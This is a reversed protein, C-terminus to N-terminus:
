VYAEEAKVIIPITLTLETGHQGDINMNGEVLALRERMGDLGSGKGASANFGVGDDKVTILMNGHQNRFSIRCMNAKSHKVINTGAERLCMSIINQQLHPLKHPEEERDVQLEIEAKKFLQSLREIESDISLSRMDAVLERVQKLAARSTAEIEKAEKIAYDPDKSVLRQVLQSQLTILSLTHGLTDHLDRAIRTREERKILEQIQENAKNLQQELQAQRAISRVAFPTSMMVFYMPIVLFYELTAGRMECWVAVALVSVGLVGMAIFFTRQKEFYAVFNASYFAMFLNWPTFIISFALIISLQIIWWVAYVRDSQVWYLKYYTFLFAGMMVIGLVLKFGTELTLYIIPFSLYLLSIYPMLGHRKPFLQFKKM